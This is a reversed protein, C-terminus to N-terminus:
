YKDRGTVDFIDISGCIKIYSNTPLLVTCSIFRILVLGACCSCQVSSTSNCIVIALKVLYPVFKSNRDQAMGIGGAKELVNM